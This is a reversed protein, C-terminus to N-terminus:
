GGTIRVVEHLACVVPSIHPSLHLGLFLMAVGGCFLFGLEKVAAGCLQLGEDECHSGRMLGVEGLVEEADWMTGKPHVKWSLAGRFAHPSNCCGGCSHEPCPPALGCIRQFTCFRRCDCGLQKPSCNRAHVRALFIGPSLLIWRPHKDTACGHGLARQAQGQVWVLALLWDAQQFFTM